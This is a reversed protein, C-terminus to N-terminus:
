RVPAVEHVLHIPRQAIHAGLPALADRDDDDVDRAELEDIVHQPMGRAILQHDLGRAAELFGGRCELAHERAPAAVLKREQDQVVGVGVGGQLRGAQQLLFQARWELQSPVPEHDRGRDADGAHIRALQPRLVHHALGVDGQRDGLAELGCLDDSVRGVHGPLRRIEHAQLRVQMDRHLLVLQPQQKLWDDVELGVPHRTGLRQQAPAMGHFAQERRIFEQADGLIGSQHHRDRAPDNQPHDPDRRM